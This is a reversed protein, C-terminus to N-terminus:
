WHTHVLMCALCFCVNFLYIISYRPIATQLPGFSLHSLYEHSCIQFCKSFNIRPPSRLVIVLSSPIIDSLPFVTTLIVADDQGVLLQSNIQIEMLWQCILMEFACIISSKELVLLWTGVHCSLWMHSSLWTLGLFILTTLLIVLPLLLASPPSCRM